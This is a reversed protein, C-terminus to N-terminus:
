QETKLGSLVQLAHIAEEMGIKGDSSIDGSYVFLEQTPIQTQLEGSVSVEIDNLLITSFNNKEIKITYTGIPVNTLKYNGDSDSITTQGTETITIVADAISTRQGTASTTVQGSIIGFKTTKFLWMSGESLAGHSDKAVIKWYYTTDHELIGHDYSTDIQDLAILSPTSSTGHYVNYTVTDGVDPDGCSWALVTNLLVDTANDGPSPSFPIHPRQNTTFSWVPGETEAGHNDRSLIKWYYTTNYSLEGSPDYITDTADQKVLPPSNSTGFYVDYTVTNSFNPDSGSWSLTTDIAIGSANNSASPLSPIYPSSNEIEVDDLYWGVSEYHHVIGSPDETVDVHYFAIRVRKGAYATLDVRGHHWVPTHQNITKLTTWDSWESNESDYIKIQVQGKDSSSYTYFQRFRLLIEEGNAVDPLEIQPSILRSDPGYPYNGDLITAACNLGSYAAGPGSSPEGVEWIGDDSYWDGWGLELDDFGSFIPIMQKLIEVDDLYWGVSEYHHVIGSPDETVDVHYFAIRVRKGAYATLDVRGHHWVPTHQNITKLTTWDSWESNESDYIKIQVQGKDSSSYTYFQRFRLLIEEGNAVDPLEIQPSILRSDPGYPYNGDLITAACNLGSYAAGPGSSPEGVEWIGSDSYWNGWGSEFDDTFLVESYASIPQGLLLLCSLFLWILVFGIFQFAKQRNMKHTLMEVKM